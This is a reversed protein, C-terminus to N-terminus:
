EFFEKLHNNRPEKAEFQKEPMPRSSSQYSGPVSLISGPAAPDLLISGQEGVEDKYRISFKLSM